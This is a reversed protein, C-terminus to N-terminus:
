SKSSGALNVGRLDCVRGYGDVFHRGHVRLEGGTGLSSWDHAYSPITGPVYSPNNSPHIQCFILQSLGQHPGTNFRVFNTRAKEASPEDGVIVYSADLPSSSSM